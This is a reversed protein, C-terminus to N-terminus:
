IRQNVLIGLRGRKSHDLVTQAAPFQLRLTRRRSNRHISNADFFHTSDQRLNPLTAERPTKPEKRRRPVADIDFLTAQAPVACGFSMLTM